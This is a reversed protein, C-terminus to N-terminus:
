KLIDRKKEFTFFFIGDCLAAAFFPIYVPAGIGRRLSFLAGVSLLLTKPLSYSSVTLSCLVYLGWFLVGSEPCLANLCACLLAGPAILYARPLSKPPAFLFLAAAFIAGYSFVGGLACALLALILNLVYMKM